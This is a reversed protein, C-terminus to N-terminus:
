VRYHDARWNKIAQKIESASLNEAIAKEILPILEDDPAFRLAAIQAITLRSDMPKRTLIFYRLGEEARIARDQAKLPFMRIFLSMLLCCGFLLLILLASLLNASHWQLVVNVVSVILGFILMASLLYHFGIVTRKHNTLNQSAMTQKQAFSVVLNIDKSKAGFIRAGLNM